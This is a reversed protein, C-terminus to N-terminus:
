HSRLPYPNGPSQGAQEEKERAAEALDHADRDEKSMDDYATSAM